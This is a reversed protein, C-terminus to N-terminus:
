PAKTAHYVNYMKCQTATTIGLIHKRKSSTGQSSQYSPFTHGWWHSESSVQAYLQVATAALQEMPFTEHETILSSTLMSSNTYQIKFSNSFIHKLNIKM